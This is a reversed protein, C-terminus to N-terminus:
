ALKLVVFSGSFHAGPYVPGGAPSYTGDAAVVARTVGGVAEMYSKFRGVLWVGDFTVVVATYGSM